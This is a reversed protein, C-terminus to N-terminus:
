DDDPAHYTLPEGLALIADCPVLETAYASAQRFTAAPAAERARALLSASPEIALTEFGADVLARTTIGAGCGIDIVRRVGSARLRPLLAAIAGEALAGFGEAHIFALDDAYLGM